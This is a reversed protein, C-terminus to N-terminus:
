LLKTWSCWACSYYWHNWKFQLHGNQFFSQFLGNIYFFQFFFSRLFSSLQITWNPLIPSLETRTIMYWATHISRPSARAYSDWECACAYISLALPVTVKLSWLESLVWHFTVKNYHNPFSELYAVLIHLLFYFNRNFFVIIVKIKVPDSLTLDVNGDHTSRWATCSKNPFNKLLIISERSLQGYWKFHFVKYLRWILLFNITLTYIFFLVYM